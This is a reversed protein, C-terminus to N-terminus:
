MQMGSYGTGCFGVLLACQRKPGLRPKPTVATESKRTGRLTRQYKTRGGPTSQGANSPAPSGPPTSAAISLEAVKPRLEEVPTMDETPGANTSEAAPTKSPSTTPTESDVDMKFRKVPSADEEDSEERRQRKGASPLPEQSNAGESSGFRALSPLTPFSLGRSIFRRVPTFIREM